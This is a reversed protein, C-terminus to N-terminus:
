SKRLLSVLQRKRGDIVEISAARDYQHVAIFGEPRDLTFLPEERYATPTLAVIKRFHIARGYAGSCDQSPRILAGDCDM